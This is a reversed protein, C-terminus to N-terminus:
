RSFLNRKKATTITSTKTAKFFNKVKIKTIEINERKNKERQAILLSSCAVIL